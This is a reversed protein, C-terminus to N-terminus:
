SGRVIEVFKYVFLGTMLIVYVRMIVLVFNTGRSYRQVGEPLVRRGREDIPLGAEDIRYGQPLADNGTAAAADIAAVAELTAGKKRKTTM